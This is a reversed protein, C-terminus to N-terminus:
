GAPLYASAVLFVIVAVTSLAIASMLWPSSALVVRTLRGHRRVDGLPEASRVVRPEVRGARERAALAAGTEEHEREVLPAATTSSM